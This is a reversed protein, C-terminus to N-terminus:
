LSDYVFILPPPVIATPLASSSCLFLPKFPSSGRSRKGCAYSDFMGDSLFFSFPIRPLRIDRPHKM